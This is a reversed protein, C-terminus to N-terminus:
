QSPAIRRWCAHHSALPATPRTYRHPGPNTSCADSYRRPNANTPYANRKTVTAGGNRLGCRDHDPVTHGRACIEHVNNQGKPSSKSFAPLACRACLRPILNSQTQM